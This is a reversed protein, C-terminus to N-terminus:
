RAGKHIAALCAELEAITQEAPQKGSHGSEERHELEDISRLIRIVPHRSINQAEQPRPKLAVNPRSYSGRYVASQPPERGPYAIKRLSEMVSGSGSVYSMPQLKLPM